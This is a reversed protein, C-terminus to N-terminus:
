LLEPYFQEFILADKKRILDRLGEDWYETRARSKVSQNERPASRICNLDSNELSFGAQDLAAILDEQLTETRLFFDVLWGKEPMGSESRKRDGSRFLNGPNKEFLYRFLYTYLGGDEQRAPLAYGFDDFIAFASRGEHIKRLWVAFNEANGPDRYLQDWMRPDRAIEGLAHRWSRRLRIEIPVAGLRENWLLRQRVSRPLTSRIRPGGSGSLCSYSFLSAYWDFPNRVSGVVLFDGLPTGEPIRNHKGGIRRGGFQETLLKGVFTCGTKQLELYLLNGAIIM